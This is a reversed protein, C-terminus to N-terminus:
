LAYKKKKGKESFKESAGNPKSAPKRRKVASSTLPRKKNKSPQADSINLSIM